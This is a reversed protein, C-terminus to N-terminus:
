MISSCEVCHKFAQYSKEISMSQIFEHGRQAISLRLNKDTVLRVINEALAVPDKVPSVLATIGDNAMELYGDNDTCAVACGCAMAEGITLGWGESHSAGVYIASDNYLALLQDSTPRRTYHYWDPLYSPREPIGFVFVQLGPFMEKVKALADFCDRCGKSEKHNYMMIVTAPSRSDIPRTLRFRTFDFGNVVVTSKEGVQKVRQRLWEAVVIKRFPFSFSDYVIKDTIGRGWNEFGQIFYLKEVNDEDPFCALWYASQLTTAIYRDAPGVHERTLTWLLHQSVSQNLNYWSSCKWDSLGLRFYVYKGIAKLSSKIDHAGAGTPNCIAYYISVDHGDEALRGAYEYIMQLGGLPKWAVGTVLFKIIM